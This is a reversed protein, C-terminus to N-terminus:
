GGKHKTKDPTGYTMGPKPTPPLPRGEIATVETGTDGGRPGLVPYQGSSPAATGPTLGKDKSM